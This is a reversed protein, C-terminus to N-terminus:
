SKRGWRRGTTPTAFDVAAQENPTLPRGAAVAHLSNRLWANEVTLEKERVRQMRITRMAREPEFPTGNPWTDPEIGAPAAPTAPETM